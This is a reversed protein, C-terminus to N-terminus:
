RIVNETMVIFYPSKRINSETRTGAKNTPNHSITNVAQHIIPIDDTLRTRTIDDHSKWFLTRDQRPLAQHRLGTKGTVFPAHCKKM